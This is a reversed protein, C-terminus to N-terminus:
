FSGMTNVKSTQAEERLQAEKMQVEERVCMREEKLRTLEEQVRTMEQQQQAIHQDRQHLEEDAQRLRRVEETLDLILEAQARVANENTRRLQRTDEQLRERLASIEGDKRVCETEFGSLRTIERGLTLLSQEKEKLLTLYWPSKGEEMEATGPPPTHTYPHAHTHVDADQQPPTLAKKLGSGSEKDASIRYRGFDQSLKPGEGTQHHQSSPVPPPAWCTKRLFPLINQSRRGGSQSQVATKPRERM